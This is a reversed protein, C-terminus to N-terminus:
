RGSSNGDPEAPESTGPDQESAGPTGPADEITIVDTASTTDAGASQPEKDPRKPTAHEIKPTPTPGASTSRRAGRRTSRMSGNVSGTSARTPTASMQAPSM